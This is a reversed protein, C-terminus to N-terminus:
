AIQAARAERKDGIQSQSTLAPYGILYTVPALVGRARAEGVEWEYGDSSFETTMAVLEEVTYTRLCSVVGDFLVVLPVVPLLYTWLLRTWRFPRIRPTLIWVILPALLMGLIAIPQRQTGEFIGIGSRSEVANRLIMRAEAPRFHHLSSFLTRFGVLDDPVCLANVSGNYYSIRGSSVV